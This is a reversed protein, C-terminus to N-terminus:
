PILKKIRALRLLKQVKFLLVDKDVPKVVYDDCGARFADDIRSSEATSTVMMIKLDLFGELQRIRRCCEIGDIGPMMVDMLVLDPRFILVKDLAERGDAAVEVEYDETELLKRHLFQTTRTDDVILVKLRMMKSGGEARM